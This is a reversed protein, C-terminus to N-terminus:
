QSPLDVRTVRTFNTVFEPEELSGQMTLSIEAYCDDNSRFLSADFRVFDGEKMELLKQYLASGSKIMTGYTSDSLSNNMTMLKVGKSIEVILVGEGSRNTTLSRIKGIWQRLESSPLVACIERARAPRAAGRQLDTQGSKYAARAKEVAQIFRDQELPPKLLNQRLTAARQKQEEQAQREKAKADEALRKQEEQAQREKAKAEEGLRQRERWAAADTIGVDGAKRRDSADAFGQRRASEDDERNSQVVFVIFSIVFMAGSLMAIRKARPRFRKFPLLILSVIVAVLFLFGIFFLLITM